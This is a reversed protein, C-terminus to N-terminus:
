WKILFQSDQQDIIIVAIGLVSLSACTQM